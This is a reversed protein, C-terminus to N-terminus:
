WVGTQTGPACSVLTQQPLPPSPLPGTTDLSHPLLALGLGLLGVWICLLAQQYGYGYVTVRETEDPSAYPSYYAQLPGFICFPVLGGVVLVSLLVLSHAHRTTDHRIEWRHAYLLPRHCCCCCGSAVLFSGIRQTQSHLLFSPHPFSLLLFTSCIATGSLTAPFLHRSYM